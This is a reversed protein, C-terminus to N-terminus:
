AGQRATSWNGALEQEAAWADGLVIRPDARQPRWGLERAIRTSDLVITDPGAADDRHAFPTQRGTIETALASLEALTVPQGTGANYIRCPGRRSGSLALLLAEALDGVHLFERATAGNGVLEPSALEGSAASMIRPVVRTRDEDRIGPVAGAINCARLVTAGIRGARALADIVQEASLKSAAYPSAPRTSAKETLPRTRGQGYVLSTSVFVLYRCRGGILLSDLLNVTGCMNLRFLRLPDTASDRSHAEGALHIVADVDSVASRLSTPNLLDAHRVEIDAEFHAPRIHALAVV